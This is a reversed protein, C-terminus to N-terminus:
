PAPTSGLPVEFFILPKKTAVVAVDPVYLSAKAVVSMDHAVDFFLFGHIAGKPPIIEADLSLPRLDAALWSWGRDFPGLLSRACACFDDFVHQKHALRGADHWERGYEGGGRLNAVALMGGREMWVAMPLSFSPTMPIDFGGYGYLVVPVDGTAVLDRRRSLFMPVRTGDGSIAFVQETVYDAPDISATSATLQTTTGTRLDHSWLSGSETFSTVRFHITDRDPSGAIGAEEHRSGAVSVVGPLPIDRRHSGDLDGVRLV